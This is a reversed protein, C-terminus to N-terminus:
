FDTLFRKLMNIESQRIAPFNAIRFTTSKLEGYGEGLLIGKKKAMSKIEAVADTTGNVPVVTISHVARNNIHHAIMKRKALFAAWEDYRKKLIGETTKISPAKELVRMLMYINLVNPTFPTQWKEMM